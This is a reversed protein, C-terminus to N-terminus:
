GRTHDHLARDLPLSANERVSIHWKQSLAACAYTVRNQEERQGRPFGTM